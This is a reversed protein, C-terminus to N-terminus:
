NNIYPNAIPTANSPHIVTICTGRLVTLGLKRTKDTLKSLDDENRM